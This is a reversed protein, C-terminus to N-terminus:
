IGRDTTQDSLQLANRAEDIGLFIEEVPQDFIVAFRFALSLSPDHRGAEVANVTQRSVDLLDALEAQSMKREARLVRLKNNM